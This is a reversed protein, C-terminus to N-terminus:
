AVTPPVAQPGFNTFRIFCDRETGPRVNPGFDHVRMPIKLAGWGYPIGFYNRGSDALNRIVISTKLRTRFMTSPDALYRLEDPVVLAGSREGLQDRLERFVVEGRKRRTADGLQFLLIGYELMVQMPMTFSPDGELAGLLNLREEFDHPRRRSVVRYLAFLSRATANETPVAKLLREAEAMADDSIENSEPGIRMALQSLAVLAAESGQAALRRLLGKGEGRELAEYANALEFLIPEERRGGEDIQLEWELLGIADVILQVRDEGSAFSSLQNLKFRAFNELVYSNDADLRQAARYATDAAMRFQEAENGNGSRQELKARADYTLALSVTLNLSSERRSDDSPEINHIADLLHNEALELQERMSEPTWTADPPDTALHRRAKAIHHNFIQSDDWVADPVRELIRVIRDREQYNRPAERPDVRLASTVLEEVMRIGATSATLESTIVRELLHLELDFPSSCTPMKVAALAADDASSLRLLEEATLVHVLSFGSSGPRGLAVLGLLNSEDAALGRLSSAADRTLLETPMELRYKSLAATELLAAHLVPRGATSQELHSKLWSHLSQESGPVRLLWFRLAVWFLSRSGEPTIRLTDAILWEWERPSRQLESPLISDFHKGLEIAEAVDISNRLPPSLFRNSGLANRRADDTRDQHTRVALVVAPRQLQKLGGALGTVFEWQLQTHQADFVVVWPTEVSSIGETSFREGARTLFTALQHFDFAVTEPRAVLVPYGIRALDFALQRIATTAGSGDEAPLWITETAAAGERAFRALQKTVRDRYDHHRAYPIGVAYPRWDAAPNALFERLDDLTPPPNDLVSRLPITQFRGTIPDSQDVCSLLDVSKDEGQTRVRILLEEAGEGVAGVSDLFDFFEPISTQWYDAREVGAVHFPTPLKPGAVIVHRFTESLESAETIGRLDEARNVGIIFLDANSPIRQLMQLRNLTAVASSTGSADNSSNPLVYIPVRNQPPDAPPNQLYVRLPHGNVEPHTERVEEIPLGVADVFVAAWPRPLIRALIETLSDTEPASVDRAFGPAIWLVARRAQVAIPWAADPLLLTEVRTKGTESM